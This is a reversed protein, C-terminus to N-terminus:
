KFDIVAVIVAFLFISSSSIEDSYNVSVAQREDCVIAQRKYM